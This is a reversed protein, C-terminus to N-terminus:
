LQEKTLGPIPPSLMDLKVINTANKFLSFHAMTNEFCDVNTYFTVYVPPILAVLSLLFAAILYMWSSSKVARLNMTSSSKMRQMNPVGQYTMDCSTGSRLYINSSLRRM